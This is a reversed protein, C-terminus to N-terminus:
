GALRREEGGCSSNIEMGGVGVGDGYGSGSGGGCFHVLEGVDEAEHVQPHAHDHNQTRDCTGRKGQSNQCPASPSTEKCTADALEEGDGELANDDAAVHNEKAETNGRMGTQNGDGASVLPLFPAKRTGSGM